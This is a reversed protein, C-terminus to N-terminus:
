NKPAPLALREKPPPLANKFERVTIECKVEQCLDKRDSLPLNPLFEVGSSREVSELPVYFSKLPVNNDIPANPLVFAGLAVRSGLKVSEGVIIKFFHTPVAVNPPNGIMEYTVRMKGDPDRKPLYLPGTVIRVSDYHRTLGRCFYEFHAWYDRNFGSGVQPCMNSLYFTNDMADQSYKADAAPAQHGRDYGSRFYDTLKARFTQPISNDEKFVSNERNGNSNKLSEKTIHEIVWLPNRTRRDYYSIYEGRNALDHIQGPFGFKLFYDAPNVIAAVASTSTSGIEVAATSPHGEVVVNATEKTKNWNFLGM